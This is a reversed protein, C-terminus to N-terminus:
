AVGGRHAMGFWVVSLPADRLVRVSAIEAGAVDARVTLRRQVLRGVPQGFASAVAFGVAAGRLKPLLGRGRGAGRGAIYAAVVGLAVGAAFNTGCYPSIALESYGDNLLDLADSAAGSVTEPESRAWIVFGAPTSYGGIPPKAGRELLLAVTAHELAHNRRTREIATMMRARM